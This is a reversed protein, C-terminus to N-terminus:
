KRQYYQVVGASSVTCFGSAGPIDLKEIQTPDEVIIIRKGAEEGGSLAQCIM